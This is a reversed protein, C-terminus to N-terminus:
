IESEPEQHLPKKPNMNKYLVGHKLPQIVFYSFVLGYFCTLLSMAISPGIQKSDPELGLIFAASLIFAVLAAYLSLRTLYNYFDLTAFLQSSSIRDSNSYKIFTFINNGYGFIAGGLLVGFMIVVSPVDIFMTISGGLLMLLFMSAFCIIIGVLKFM